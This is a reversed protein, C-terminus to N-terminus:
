PDPSCARCRLRLWCVRSSVFLLAASILPLLYTPDGLALNPIWLFSSEELSPVPLNAMGRTLRIVGFAVPIQILPLMTKWTKVGSARTIMNLQGRLAMVKVQDRAGKFTETIMEQRTRMYEPKRALVQMKRGEEIGVATVKFVVVRFLLAFAVISAWWPAGTWIYIHELCWQTLATPGWGYELGLSKLFGIQEPMNLLDAEGFSLASADLGPLSDDWAGEAPQVLTETAAVNTGDDPSPTPSQSPLSSSFRVHHYAPLAQGSTLSGPIVVVSRNARLRLLRSQLLGPLAGSLPGTHAGTQATRAATGPPAKLLKKTFSRRSAPPSAQNKALRRHAIPSHRPRAPRLSSLPRLFERPLLPGLCHASPPVPKFVRVFGSGSSLRPGLRLCPM